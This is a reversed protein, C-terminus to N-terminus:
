SPASALASIALTLATASASTLRTRPQHRSRWGALVSTAARATVAAVRAGARAVGAGPALIWFRHNQTKTPGKTMPSITKM